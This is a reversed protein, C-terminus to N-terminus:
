RILWGKGGAAAKLVLNPIACSYPGEAYSGVDYPPFYVTAHDESITWRSFDTVGAAIAETYGKLEEDLGAILEPNSSAADIGEYRKLKENKLDATCTEVLTTKADPGFVDGYSLLKGNKLDATISTSTSMGHAGGGYMDISLDVNLLDDSAYATSASIGYYCDYEYDSTVERVGNDAEISGLISMIEADFAKEAPTTANAGFLYVEANASCKTKTQPRSVFYPTLPKSMGPGALHAGTLFRGRENTIDLLCKILDPQTENWSCSDDRRKLWAIQNSKLMTKQDAAVREMVMGYAVGMADDAAKLDADACIAKEVKTSARACDFAMASPSYAVAAVLAASTLMLSKIM